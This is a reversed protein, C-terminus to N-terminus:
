STFTFLWSIAEEKILWLHDTLVTLSHSDSKKRHWLNGM